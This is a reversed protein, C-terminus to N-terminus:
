KKQNGQHIWVAVYSCIIRELKSDALIMMAIHEQAISKASVYILNPSVVPLRGILTLEQLQTLTNRSTWSNRAGLSM